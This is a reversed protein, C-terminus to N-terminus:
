SKIKKSEITGFSFYSKLMKCDKNNKYNITNKSINKMYHHGYKRYFQM